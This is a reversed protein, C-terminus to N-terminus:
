TQFPEQPAPVSQPSRLKLSPMRGDRTGAAPQRDFPMKQNGYWSGQQFETSHVARALTDGEEQVYLILLCIDAWGM